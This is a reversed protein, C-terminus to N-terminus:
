KPPSARAARSASAPRRTSTTVSEKRAEEPSRSRTSDRSVPGTSTNLWTSGSGERSSTALPTAARRAKRGSATTAKPPPDGMSQALPMTHAAPAAGASRGGRQHMGVVAPVPLSTVAKATSVSLCRPTFIGRMSSPSMGWAAMRSGPGRSPTGGRTVASVPM